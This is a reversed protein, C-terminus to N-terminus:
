LFDATYPVPLQTLFFINQSLQHTYNQFLTTAFAASLIGNLPNLLSSNMTLTTAPPSLGLIPIIHGLRKVDKNCAQQLASELALGDKSVM